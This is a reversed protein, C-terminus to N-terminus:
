RNLYLFVDELEGTVVTNSFEGTMEGIKILVKAIYPHPVPNSGAVALVM